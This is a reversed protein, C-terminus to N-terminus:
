NGPIPISGLADRCVKKLKALCRQYERESGWLTKSLSVHGPACRGATCHLALHRAKGLVQALTLCPANTTGQATAKSMVPNEELGTPCPVQVVGASINLSTSRNVTTWPGSRACYAHLSAICAARARILLDELGAGACELILHDHYAHLVRARIAKACQVLVSTPVHLTPFVVDVAPYTPLM